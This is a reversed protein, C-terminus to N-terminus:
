KKELEKICKNYIDDTIVSHHWVNNNEFDKIGKGKITEAHILKPKKSNDNFGFARDLDKISHGNVKLVNWGFSKFKEDINNNKMIENTSGTQQYGNADLIVVLNELNLNPALMAAEWVSGENCEGDGIIVYVKNSIKKKKFSIAVGIGLSLGMGLSGTSFDIGIKKNKVPHGLLESGSKEFTNMQEKTILKNEYFLSYLALCAHGKSLIIRDRNINDTGTKFFRKFLVGIIEVLSLAGGIHASASSGVKGMYIINKRLALCYDKIENEPM